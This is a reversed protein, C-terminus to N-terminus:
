AAYIRQAAALHDLFRGYPERYAAVQGADPTCTMTEDSTVHAGVLEPLSTSDGQAQSLSWLAQLAAGFAAGEAERPVEVPLDFVDAIMQRWAASASGGGTLVIRDFSM